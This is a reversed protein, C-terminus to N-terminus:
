NTTIKLLYDRAEEIENEAFVKIGNKTLLEATVGTGNIKTESFTGDYIQKTGCSPSFNKLIAIRIAKQRAINVIMQAAMRFTDTDDKGNRTKVLAKGNLVGAGGDDGVIERPTRPVKMGAIVEPCLPLLLKQNQLDKLIPNDIKAHGGDYRVKEGLLCASILIKEM